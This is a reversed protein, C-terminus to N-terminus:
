LREIIEALSPTLARYNLGVCIREGLPWEGKEGIRALAEAALGRLMDEKGADDLLKCLPGIADSNGVEGLSVIRIALESFGNSKNLEEVLLPVAMPDHMLRLARAANVRARHDLGPKRIVDRLQDAVRTEHLLGLALGLYGKHIEDSAEGLASILQDAAGTGHAIGLAIAVASRFSISDCEAFAHKLIPVALAQRGAHPRADIALALAAWPLCSSRKPRRVEDTLFALVSAHQPSSSTPDATDRSGIEGLAIYALYRTQLDSSHEAADRLAQTVPQESLEALKGLAIVCSRIMEDDNKPDQVMQLLKPVALTGAHGLRAISTPVFSRVNRTLDHNDLQGMLFPVVDEEQRTFLGLAFMAGAKLERQTEPESVVIKKLIPIGSPHGILGLGVAAMTRLRQTISEGGTLKTASPTGLAIENLLPVARPAGLAGLALAAMERISSQDSRLARELTPFGVDASSPQLILGLAALSWRAQLRNDQEYASVIAPAMENEVTGQKLRVSPLLTRSGRGVGIADAGSHPAQELSEALFPGKNFDWWTEWREAVGVASGRREGTSTGGSRARPLPAGLGGPRETRV